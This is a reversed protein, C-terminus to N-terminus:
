VIAGTRSPAVAANPSTGSGTAQVNPSGTGSLSSMQLQVSSVAAGDPSLPINFQFSDDSNATVLITYHPQGDVLISATFSTSTGASAVLTGQVSKYTGAGLLTVTGNASLSQAFTAVYDLSGQGPQINAPNGTPNDITRSSYRMYCTCTLTDAAIASASINKVAMAFGFGQGLPTLSTAESMIAQNNGGLTTLYQNYGYSAPLGIVAVLEIQYSTAIGNSSQILFFVMDWLSALSPTNPAFGNPQPLYLNVNGSTAGAGLNTITLNGSMTPVWSGTALWNNTVNGQVTETISGVSGVNLTANTVNVDLTANQVNVDFSGGSPVVTITANTINADFTSGAEPTVTVTGTVTGVDFTSGAEPTVVVTGSITGVDFVSGAEPTVTVPGTISATVPGTITTSPEKIWSVGPPLIDDTFEISGTESATAQDQPTVVYSTLTSSLWRATTISNARAYIPTGGEVTSVILDADSPNTIIVTAAIGTGPIVGQRVIAGAATNEPTIPLPFIANM